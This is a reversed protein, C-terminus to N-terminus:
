GLKAEKLVRYEAGTPRLISEFLTIAKVETKGFSKNEYKKLIRIVADLNRSSKVRGLTLHPHFEREEKPFGLKEFTGELRRQLDKLEASLVVGAWLVRPTGKEPFYGTSRCELSFPQSQRAITEMNIVIQDLDTETIEGLFKMTLHFSNKSVWRIDARIQQLNKILSALASKVEPSLDIAIFSRM